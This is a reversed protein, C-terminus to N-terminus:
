QWTWKLSIKFNASLSGKTVLPIGAEGSADVGFEIGIESPKSDLGAVREIFAKCSEEIVGSVGNLTERTAKIFKDTNMEQRIPGSIPEIQIMFTPKAPEDAM